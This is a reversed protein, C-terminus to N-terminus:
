QKNQKEVEAKLITLAMNGKAQEGDKELSRSHTLGSEQELFELNKQDTISQLNGQKAQETGAKAQDLIAGAQNEMARANLLAIEGQLKQLELQQIQQQIPDPEEQFEEIQKALEPMKRLTAVKALIMRTFTPPMSNGTTQLMFALEQAKANDEEATSISLKLDFNGKLDDRRITIFEENTVRVVEEDSLFEANMALIMEGARVLGNAFRRLIGLERKSAADLAGRVGTATDGLGDGSIGGSYAKVGTLSDADNNQIGLMLSVSNPIEPYQHDIIAQRPDVAPNFEYNLGNSFRRKNVEDLADKRMGQQANASRAMLDVAGRTVAGIIAQNEEILSGDSDGHTSDRDPLYQIVEFPLRTFPYPSEELRIMTGNVWTAVFPVTKGTGHIDWYGWYEYAVIRARPKDKFNFSTDGTMEHDPTNLPSAGQTNESIEDLNEYFGAKELDSLTTTFPYVIFQAKSAVGGCTPDIVVNASNCVELTPRNKVIVQNKVEIDGVHKPIIATGHQETLELAQKIHDPAHAEFAEPKQQAAQAYPLLMNMEEPTQAPYFEYQPVTSTEENEESEWGVRLIVTGEDVGTRIYRDIFNVKDIDQNMQRNLILGNQRAGEVDEFTLPEPNFLNDTALFPESLAAYRWEAQKRVVKPQFSSYGKRKKIKVDNRIRLVDLSHEVKAMQEHHHPLAATYDAKLEELSPANAWDKSAKTM